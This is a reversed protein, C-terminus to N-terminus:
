ISPFMSTSGRFRCKSLRPPFRLITFSLIPPQFVFGGYVVGETGDPGLTPVAATPPAGRGVASDPAVRSGTSQM